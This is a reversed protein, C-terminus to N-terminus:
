AVKVLTLINRGKERRYEVKDMLRRYMYVGLGGIRRDELPANINPEPMSLPNFPNGSDTIEITLRGKESSCGIEIEGTGSPYAYNIVNVIAEEAALQIQNVAKVDFGAAQANRNVCALLDPLNDMIAPLVIKDM